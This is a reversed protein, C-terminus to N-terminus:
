SYIDDNEVVNIGSGPSVMWVGPTDYLADGVQNPVVQGNLQWYFAGNNPDVARTYGEPHDAKLHGDPYKWVPRGTYYQRFSPSFNGVSVPRSQWGLARRFGQVLTRYFTERMTIGGPNERPIVWCDVPLNKDAMDSRKQARFRLVLLTHIDFCFIQPSDYKIAYGRLEQSLKRQGGSTLKGVEWEDPQITNRKFEGVVINAREQLRVIFSTDVVKDDISSPAESRTRVGPM